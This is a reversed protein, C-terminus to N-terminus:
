KGRKLFNIYFWPPAIFFLNRFLLTLLTLLTLVGQSLSSVLSDSGTFGADLLSLGVALYHCGGRM